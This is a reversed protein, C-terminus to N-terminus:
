LGEASRENQQEAPPCAKNEKELIHQYRISFCHCKAAFILRNFPENSCSTKLECNGHYFENKYTHAQIMAQSPQPFPIHFWDSRKTGWIGDAQRRVAIQKCGNRIISWVESTSFYGVAVLSFGCCPVRNWHERCNSAYLLSSRELHKSCPKFIINSATTRWEVIM